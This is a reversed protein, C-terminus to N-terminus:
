GKRRGKVRGNAVSMEHMLLVVEAEMVLYTNRSLRPPHSLPAQNVCHVVFEVSPVHIFLFLHSGAAMLVNSPM